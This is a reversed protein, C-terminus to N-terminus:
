SQGDSAESPVAGVYGGGVYAAATAGNSRAVPPRQGPPLPNLLVRYGLCRVRKDRETAQQKTIEELHDLSRGCRVCLISNEEIQKAVSQAFDEVDDPPQVDAVKGENKEGSLTKSEEAASAQATMGALLEGKEVMLENVMDGREQLDAAQLEMARRKAKLEM